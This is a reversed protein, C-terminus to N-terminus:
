ALQFLLISFFTPFSFMTDSLQPFAHFLTFGCWAMLPTTIVVCEEVRLPIVGSSAQHSAQIGATM